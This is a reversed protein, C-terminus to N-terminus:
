AISCIMKSLEKWKDIDEAKRTLETSDETIKLQKIELNHKNVTGKWFPM